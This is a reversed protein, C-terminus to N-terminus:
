PSFKLFDGTKIADVLEKDRKNPKFAPTKDDIDTYETLTGQWREKVYVLADGTYAEKVYKLYLSDPFMVKGFNNLSPMITGLKSFPQILLNKFDINKQALVREELPFVIEVEIGERQLYQVFGKYMVEKRINVSDKISQYFYQPTPADIDSLFREDEKTLTRVDETHFPKAIYIKM